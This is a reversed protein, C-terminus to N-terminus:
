VFPAADAEPKRGLWHDKSPGAVAAGACGAGVESGCRSTMGNGALVLAGTGAAGAMGAM